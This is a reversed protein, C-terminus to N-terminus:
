PLVTGPAVSRQRYRPDFFCVARKPVVRDLKNCGAVKATRADFGQLGITASAARSDDVSDYQLVIEHSGHYLVAQARLPQTSSIPSAREFGNWEIVTCAETAGTDSARPCTPFHAQRVQGGARPRLDDHYVYIRDQSSTPNDAIAPLPCDNSFDSGDEVSFANAAALYGNGSVVLKDTPLQYLEFPKALTIVAARDDVAAGAHGPALVVSAGASDLPIYDYGCFGPQPSDFTTYGYLDRTNNSREQAQLGLAVVTALVLAALKMVITRM